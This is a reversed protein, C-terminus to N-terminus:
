TTHIDIERSTLVNKWIVNTQLNKSATSHSKWIATCSTSTPPVVVSLGLGPLARFLIAPNRNKGYFEECSWERLVLWQQTIALKALAPRKTMRKLIVGSRCLHVTWRPPYLQLDSKSSEMSGELPTKCYRFRLNYPLFTCFESLQDVIKYMYVIWFPLQRTYTYRM